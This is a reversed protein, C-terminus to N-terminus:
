FCSSDPTLLHSPCVCKQEAISVKLDNLYGQDSAEIEAVEAQERELEQLIENYEKELTPVLEEATKKLPELIKADQAVQSHCVYM